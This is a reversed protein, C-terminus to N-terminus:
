LRSSTPSGQPGTFGEIWGRVVDVRAFDDRGRCSPDGANLAGAVRATGDSARLMVPGGSDGHCLGQRGLGHITVYDPTLAVIPEVTFFRVGFRYNVSRGYGAAEALQGLRACELDEAVIPIPQIGPLWETADDVLEILALDVLPHPIVRVSPICIDPADHREGMCFEDGAVLPCHRATLVWRPAILTGSCMGLSGISPVQAAALPVFSPEITGGLVKSRYEKIPIEIEGCDEVAPAEFTDCGAVAIAATVLGFSVAWPARALM